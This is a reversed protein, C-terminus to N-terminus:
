PTDHRSRLLLAPGLAPRRPHLLSQGSEGVQSAVSPPPPARGREIMSPLATAASGTRPLTRDGEDVGRWWCLSPGRYARRPQESPTRHGCQGDLDLPRGLAHQAESGTADVVDRREADGHSERDRHGHQEQGVVDGPRHVHPEAREGADVRAVLGGPHPESALREGPRHEGHAHGEPRREGAHALQHVRRRCRPGRQQDAGDDRSQGGHEHERAPQLRSPRDEREERDGRHRGRRRGSGHPRREQHRRTRRRQAHPQAQEAVPGALPMRSCVHIRAGFAPGTCLQAGLERSERDGRRDGPHQAQGGPQGERVPRLDRRDGQQRSRAARELDLAPQVADDAGRQADDGGREQEGEGALGPLEHDPHHHQLEEGLHVHQAVVGEGQQEDSGERQEHHLQRVGLGDPRHELRPHELRGDAHHDADHDHHGRGQHVPMPVARGPRPRIRGLEGIRGPTRQSTRLGGLM